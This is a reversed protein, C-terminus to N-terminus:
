IDRIQIICEHSILPKNKGCDHGTFDGLCQCQYRGASTICKGGNKCPFSVCPQEEFQCLDGTFGTICRCRITTNYSCTGNNLCPHEGCTIKEQCHLGRFGSPCSCVYKMYLNVCTASGHCPNSLCENSDAILGVICQKRTTVGEMNKGWVCLLNEGLQRPVPRWKSYLEFLHFSRSHNSTTTTNVHQTFSQVFTTNYKDSLLYVPFVFDTHRSFDNYSYSSVMSDPFNKAAFTMTSKCGYSSSVVDVFFQLPISNIPQNPLLVKSALKIPFRPFDEVTVAVRYRSGATFGTQNTANIHITCSNEDIYAQPLDTCSKGCESTTAWRCKITDADPDIVPLSINSICGFRIGTYPPLAAVPSANISQTDNRVRTDVTTSLTVTNGSNLASPIHMSITFITDIMRQEFTHEGQEWSPNEGLATIVYNMDSGIMHNSCGVACTWLTDNFPPGTNTKKGIDTISCGSGCPGTGREFTMRWTFRLKRRSERWNITGGLFTPSSFEPLLISITFIVVSIDGKM